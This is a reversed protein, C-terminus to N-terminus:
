ESRLVLAARTRAATRAPFVAAANGILLTLAVVAVLSAAPVVVGAVVGVNDAFSSWTWRGIVIGLPIAIVLAVLVLTTAQAAVTTALQRRTFGITKLV